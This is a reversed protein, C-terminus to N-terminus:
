SSHLFPRRTLAGLCNLHWTLWHPRQGCPTLPIGLGTCAGERTPAEGHLRYDSRESGVSHGPRPPHAHTQAALRAVFSEPGGRSSYPHSCALPWPVQCPWRFAASGDLSDASSGPVILMQLQIDLQDEPFQRQTLSQIKISVHSCCLLTRVKIVDFPGTAVPGLCAASFGSGMSQLPTLQM